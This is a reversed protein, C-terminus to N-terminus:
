KTTAASTRADSTPYDLVAVAFSGLTVRAATVPVQRIPGGGSAVDVVSLTGGVADTPLDIPSPVQRRNVLLIRREAGRRYGQFSFREGPM